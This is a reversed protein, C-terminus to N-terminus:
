QRINLNYYGCAMIRIHEALPQPGETHAALPIPCQFLFTISIDPLDLNLRLLLVKNLIQNHSLWLRLYSFILSLGYQFSYPNQYMKFLM